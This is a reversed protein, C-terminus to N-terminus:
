EETNFELSYQKRKFSTLMRVRKEDKLLEILENDSKLVAGCNEGRQQVVSAVNGSKTSTLIYAGAAIAEQLTYSYSEPVISWLIVIDIEHEKLVEVAAMIGQEIFSYSCNKVQDAYKEQSGIHYLEYQVALEPHNFLKEWTAWGKNDMKYGLYAIRIKRTSAREGSICGNEILKLHPRVKIKNLFDPYIIQFTRKVFESPVVISVSSSLISALMRRWEDVTKGHICNSCVSEVSLNEMQNICTRSGTENEQIMHYSSCCAFFDHAFYSIPINAESISQHIRKYDRYQWFLLHHIHMEKIQSKSSKLISLLEELSYYGQKSENIYVGYKIAPAKDGLSHHQMPYIVLTGEGRNQRDKMHEYISKETGGMSILYDTHSIVLTCQLHKLNSIVDQRKRRNERFLRYTQLVIKARKKLKQKVKRLILGGFRLGKTLRWSQSNKMEEIQNTLVDITRQLNQHEIAQTLTINRFSENEERLSENLDRQMILERNLETLSFQLQNRRYVEEYMWQFLSTQVTSSAYIRIEVHIERSKPMEMNEFSITWNSSVNGAIFIIDNDRKTAVIGNNNRLYEESNMIDWIINGNGDKILIGSVIGSGIHTLPDIRLKKIDNVNIKASLLCHENWSYPLTQSCTETFESESSWYIKVKPPEVEEHRWSKRADIISATSYRITKPSNLWYEMIELYNPNPNPYISDHLYVEQKLLEKANSSDIQIGLKTGVAVIFEVTPRGNLLLAQDSPTLSSILNLMGRFYVYQITVEQGISWEADFYHLKGDDTRMLNMPTCDIYEPPLVENITFKRLFAIWPELLDAVKSIDARSKLAEPLRHLYLQGNIYESEGLIHTISPNSDGIDFLKSKTVSIVGDKISSFATETAFEKRRSTSFSSALWNEGLLHDLSSSSVIALFSNSLDQILANRGLVEWGRSEHFLRNHQGSYDESPYVGIIQDIRFSSNQFAKESVMISPLKYDPFPYLFNIESLGASQIQRELERKGFTVVGHSNYFDNIGDFINGTHDESAGNFYKLGLQNEIAILLLGNTKLFRRAQTLLFQIPDNSHIYTPAYELVGILTVIDFKQDYQFNEFNDCVVQVNNLEKVREAAIMARRFSGEVSVVSAGSEGLYRTIAGCGCGIELVSHHIGIKLPRLLNHRTPSLHYRSPWDIIKDMLEESYISKDAAGKIAEYLYEEEFTGDSYQFDSLENRSWLNLEKNYIYSQM